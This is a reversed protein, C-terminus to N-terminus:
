PALRSRRWGDGSAVYLLREHLRDNGEQWFEISTPRLRIAGWDEPCPLPGGSTEAALADLRARLPALDDIEEGQRSVLTQLRHGRPRAAFLEEALQREAIEARGEVRVQRGLQPWHFVAAARPDARLDRAKRTWLGTGFVLAGGELRKLSVVRASPRGDAAVTVLTMAAAAPLRAERAEDLWASLLGGPESQPDGM